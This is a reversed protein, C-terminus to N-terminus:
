AAELWALSFDTRARGGQPYSITDIPGKQSPDPSRLLVRASQHIPPLMLLLHLTRYVALTVIVIRAKVQTITQLPSSFM